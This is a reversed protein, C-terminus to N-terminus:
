KKELPPLDLGLRGVHNLYNPYLGIVGWSSAFLRIMDEPPLDPRQMARWDGWLQDFHAKMDTVLEQVKEPTHGLEVRDPPAPPSSSSSSM